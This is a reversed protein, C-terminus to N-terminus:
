AAEVLRSELVFQAIEKGIPCFVAVVAWIDIAAYCSYGGIPELQFVFELIPSLEIHVWVYVLILGVILVHLADAKLQSFQPMLDSHCRSEMLPGIIVVFYIPSESSSFVFAFARIEGNIPSEILILSEDLRPFLFLDTTHKRM